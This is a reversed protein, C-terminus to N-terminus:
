NIFHDMLVFVEISGSFYGYKSSESLHQLGENYNEFRSTKNGTICVTNGEYHIGITEKTM